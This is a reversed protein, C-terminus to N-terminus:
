AVRRIGDTLKSVHDSWAMLAKRKEEAYDHKQYIGVIGGFSGSVHNLIKECTTVPVGIRALGSATSRRLDHLTFAPMTEPLMAALRERYKSFNSVAHAGDHSFVFDSGVFRPMAKLIALAQPSLAVDNAVGNKARSAPLHWVARELDLEGWTLECVEARRAGTLLLFQVAAGFPGGMEKAAKMVLRIEGDDLFRDRESKRETPKKLNAVPSATVIENEICWNFLSRIIEHVRNAMMPSGRAVIRELMDRVDSRTISAISREGWRPLVIKQLMRKNEYITRPRQKRECHKGIFEAVVAAVTSTEAEKKEEAPDAGVAVQRLAAAALERAKALTFIPYAGITYKKSKGHIRYRVAWSKKGTPQVILFLGTLLEDAIEQRTKTPKINEISKATLKTAM